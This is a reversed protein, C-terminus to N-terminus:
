IIWCISFIVAYIIILKGTQELVKNLGANIPNHVVKNFLPLALIFTIVSAIIDSRSVSDGTEVSLGTVIGDFPARIYYDNLKEKTDALSNEKQEIVIKQAKKEDKTPDGDKIQEYKNEASDLNLEADRIAKQADEMDLLAIMEGKKVLQDNEVYVKVVDIADGAAVSKLDVQSQAELQGTGTVSVLLMGKEAAVTKYQVIGTKTKSKSYWYLSGAIVLLIAMIIAPKKLFIKM